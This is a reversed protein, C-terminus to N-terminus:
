CIGLVIISHPRRCIVGLDVGLGPYVKVDVGAISAEDMIKEFQEKPCNQAVFIQKIKDKKLERSVENFGIIIKNDERAKKIIEFEGLEREKKETKTEQHVPKEEKKVENKPEEKKEQKEIKKVAKKKEKKETKEKAM